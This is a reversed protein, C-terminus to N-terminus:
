AAAGNRSELVTAALIMAAGCWAKLSMSEGGIIMASIVAVLLEVVQLIAARSVEVRTVGYTTLLTGGLLWVCAFLLLLGWSAVGIDPLAPTTFLLAVAAALVACGVFSVLTRSVLPIRRAQRNAIGAATYCLGSSLAMADALSPLQRFVEAGGMIVFVGGLSLAVALVRRLNLRERMILTGGLAGWAPLLYFLLMARLVSGTMLATTFAINAWGFFVGIMLLLHWEGRWAARERWILPLAALGVLAYATLALMQGTLGIAAFFKLPIWILGWAIGSGMLAAFALPTEAVRSAQPTGAADISMANGPFVRRIPMSSPNRCYFFSFFFFAHM